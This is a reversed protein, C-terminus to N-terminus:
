FLRRLRDYGRAIEEGLLRAAAAVDRGAEGATDAVNEATSRLRALKDELEVWEDEAELKALHAKVVLEDRQTSLTDLLKQLEERPNM